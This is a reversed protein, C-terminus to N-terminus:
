NLTNKKLVDNDSKWLNFRFAERHIFCLYLHLANYHSAVPRGGFLWCYLSSTRECSCLHRCQCARPHSSAPKLIINALYVLWQHTTCHNYLPTKTRGENTVSCKVGDVIPGLMLVRWIWLVCVSNKRDVGCENVTYNIAALCDISLWQHGDSRESQGGGGGEVGGFISCEELDTLRCDM